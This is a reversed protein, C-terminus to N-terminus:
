TEEEKKVFSYGLFGAGLIMAIILAYRMQKAQTDKYSKMIPSHKPTSASTKSSSGGTMRAEMRAVNQAAKENESLGEKPTTWFFIVFALVFMFAGVSRFIITQYKNFFDM